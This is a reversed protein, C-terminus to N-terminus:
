MILVGTTNIIAKSQIQYKEKTELDSAIVSESIGDRNKNIKEVKMYNLLVVNFQATTKALSIAMCADDFQGDFYVVGVKLEKQDITPIYNIM